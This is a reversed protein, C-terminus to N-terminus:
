SHRLSPRRRRRTAVLALLAAAAGWGALGRTPAMRCGCGSDEEPPPTSGVPAPGVTFSESAEDNATDTECGTASAVTATVVFSGEADPEGTVDVTASDGAALAGLDCSDTDCTGASSDIATITGGTAVITVVVDARDTDASNQVQFSAVVTEGVNTEGGPGGTVSLDSGELTPIEVTEYHPDTANSHHLVLLTPPEALGAPVALELTDDEPYLPSGYHSDPLTLKPNDADVSVWDTTDLPEKMPLGLVLPLRSVRSVGRYAFTAAGPDLHLSALAVPFVLVRNFNVHTEWTEPEDSAFFVGSPYAPLAANLPLFDADKLGSSLRVTRALPSPFNRTIPEGSNVQFFSEALVLYDAVEDGDTDVEIGVESRWGRAPTTWDAATVIGFYVRELDPNSLHGVAVLDCQADPGTPDAHSSTETGLELVSTANGHPAAAGQLALTAIGPGANAYCGTVGDASREAAAQVVGHYAVRAAVVSDGQHTLTVTGSAETIFLSPLEADGSDTAQSIVGTFGEYAPSPPLQTPDVSLSITFTETGGAPVTISTPSLEVVTGPWQLAPDLALDLSAAASDSNSVIVTRSETVATATRISGFSVGAEGVLGDVTATITATLAADIQLRGAGAISAPFAEEYSNLVPQGTSVMRQKIELPGLAPLGQRLLAAAGAATPCAMSTGSMAAGDVGSGHLASFINVGPAMLDPKLLRQEVTPGRASFLAPFDPGFSVEMTVGDTMTASLPAAAWLKEGDARRLSWMPIDPPDNTASFANMPFDGYTNNVFIMGIAGADAAHGAKTVFTCTGRKVLAIKGAVVTPNSLPDCGLEPEALEITATVTGLDGINPGVAGQGVPYLGGVASPSTVELTLFSMSVPQKLSAGVSLAAPASAPFGATFYTRDEGAGNGASAVFLSGASTLATIADREATSAGNDFDSGLSANVVDLRDAPNTDGDPDTAWELAALLLDTSGECGFIKIAYLSAEPAVGPTLNFNNPDLSANFPGAYSTGSTLVGTGGAIGAVHTGHGQCDIPDDDPTPTTSGNLGSSDYGDGALDIGGAVKATPFSTGEIITHDDAGYANPDGAGGFDAHFYDIGTDIIGIRMGLGTLPTSNEWLAPAGILPVSDQRTPRVLTPTELRAVGPLAAISGLESRGVRIQVLNAVLVLDAVIHAGLAELRGTLAEHRAGLEAARAMVLKSGATSTPDLGQPVAAIAGPGDLVVYRSVTDPQAQRRAAVTSVETQESAAVGTAEAAEDTGPACSAAVVLGTLAAAALLPGKRRETVTQVRKASLRNAVRQPM